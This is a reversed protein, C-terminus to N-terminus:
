NRLVTKQGEHLETRRDSKIHKKLNQLEDAIQSPVERSLGIEILKEAEGFKNCDLALVAAGRFLVARTVLDEKENRLLMAAREELEFAKRLFDLVKSEDAREIQAIQANDSFNMAERHIRMAQEIIESM